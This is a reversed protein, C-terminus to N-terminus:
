TEAAAGVLQEGATAAALHGSTIAGEIWGGGDPSIDGGAFVLPGDTGELAEYTGDTSGARRCRAAVHGPRVPRRELRAGGHAVVEAGPAFAEIAAEVAARDTGDVRGHGSFGILLQADDDAPRLTM